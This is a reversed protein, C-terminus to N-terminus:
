ETNNEMWKKTKEGIKPYTENLHEFTIEYRGIINDKNFNENRLTDNLIVVSKFEKRLKSLERQQFYCITLISLAGVWVITKDHKMILKKM